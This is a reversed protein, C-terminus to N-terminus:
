RGAHGADRRRHLAARLGHDTERKRGYARWLKDRLRTEDSAAAHQQRESATSGVVPRWHMAYLDLYVTKEYEPKNKAPM